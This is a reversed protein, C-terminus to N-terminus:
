TVGFRALAAWLQAATQRVSARVARASELLGREVRTPVPSSQDSDALRHEYSQVVQQHKYAITAELADCRAQLQGIETRQRQVQREFASQEAEIDDVQEALRDRQREIQDVQARLTAVHVRKSIDRNRRGIVRLCRATSDSDDASHQSDSM